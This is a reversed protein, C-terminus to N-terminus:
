CLCMNKRPANQCTVNNDDAAIRVLHRSTTTNGLRCRTCRATSSSKTLHRFAYYPCTSTNGLRRRNCGAALSSKTLHQFAYYPCASTNGLRRRTRGAASSSKKLGKVIDNQDQISETCISLTEKFRMNTYFNAAKYTITGTASLIYRFPPCVDIIAKQFKWLGYLVFPRSGVAKIKKSQQKFYSQKFIAAAARQRQLFTKLYFLHIQQLQQSM